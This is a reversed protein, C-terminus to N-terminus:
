KGRIKNFLKQGGLNIILKKLKNLYRSNRLKWEILRRNGEIWSAEFHHIAYTNPTIILNKEGPNKPCFYEKPYLVFEDKVNIYKGDLVINYKKITMNTITVTNTTLDFSGDNNIFSRNEYYSLLYKIWTNNKESGIIATPISENSEYGSFCKNTLFIDIKKVLEMDTDMYIGGYNYLAYLRVYDSVFAWKKSEHAERVYKISKIDFNKENWEKLEYDPCFKKWSDICKVVSEPKQNGGFWCYHIIKPIM